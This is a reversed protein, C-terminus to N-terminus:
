IPWWARVTTGAGKTSEIAFSGGSLRAREGMSVLGLGRKSSESSLAKEPEFGHGNDQIALELTNDNKKLSLRVGNAKSHKAVNNMAEQLIRYTVTRLSDPINQEEVEIQKEVRIHPYTTQYERCFWSIAPLIGLDDLM